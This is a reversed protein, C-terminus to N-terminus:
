DGSGWIKKARRRRAMLGVSGIALLSLSGPEPLIGVVTYDADPVDDISWAIDNSPDWGYSGDFEDWQADSLQSLDTISPYDSQVLSLFSGQYDFKDDSGAADSDLVGPLEDEGGVQDALYIDTLGNPNAYSEGWYTPQPTAPPDTVVILPALYYAPLWDDPAASPPNTGAPYIAGVVNGGISVQGTGPPNFPPNTTYPANPSIPIGTQNPDGVQIGSSVFYPTGPPLQFVLPIWGFSFAKAVPQLGRAVYFGTNGPGGAGGNGGPGGLINIVPNNVASNNITTNAPQVTTASGGKPLTPASSSTAVNLDISSNAVDNSFTLTDYQGAGLGVPASLLDANWGSFGSSNNTLSGYQILPYVGAGFSAGPDISVPINTSITLNGTSTILDNGGTPGENPIGATNLNYLLGAGSNLTLGNQFTVNTADGPVISGGGNVTTPGYVYSAPAGGGGLTGGNNVTVPGTGLASSTASFSDQIKLVGANITTGGSYTNSSNTV